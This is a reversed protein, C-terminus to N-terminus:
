VLGLAKTSFSLPFSILAFGVFRVAFIDACCSIVFNRLYQSLFLNSYNKFMLGSMGLAIGSGFVGYIIYMYKIKSSASDEQKVQQRLYTFDEVQGDMVTTSPMEPQIGIQVAVFVLAIPFGIM